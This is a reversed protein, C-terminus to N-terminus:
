HISLISAGITADGLESNLESVAYKGAGPSRGRRASFGLMDARAMAIVMQTTAIGNAMEGAIYPFRVGHSSCFSKDGLWEPYMPPLTGVLPYGDEGSQSQIEGRM